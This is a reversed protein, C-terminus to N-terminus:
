RLEICVMQHGYLKKLNFHVRNSEYKFDISDKEPVLQVSKPESEIAISLNIDFLPIVDEIVDMATSRRQPVYHMLHVVQRNQNPQKNITVELSSPGNHRVLREPLLMDIANYFMKKCWLPANTNYTKFLPHCFYITNGNKVVAPLDSQGLSPAQQHSCFHEYTRDFHPKITELLVESSGTTQVSLGRLYMVHETKPLGKGIPGNPIVYNIYNNHHYHRGRVSNGEPDVTEDAVYEVGLSRLGFSKGTEDLGSEYSAIIKGGSALYAELKKALATGVTIADPLLLVKYASFDSQSDLIDFQYGGEILMRTAGTISPHLGHEASTPIFEEPTLVGIEVVPIADTCWSEKKKVESYVSGILDYTTRCIKGSPNLQDGICCKANLALMRYCEYELSAKNKFSHFDGWWTHFKGTMGLYDHGLTRAYRATTPFHLYGWFGGPLSELEFHTLTDKLSRDRPGVHGANYFILPNKVLSRAFRTMDTKFNSIVELGHKIRAGRDLPNIGKQKMSKRCYMCSCDQPMVIDFWLGDVPLSQIVDKVIQKLYDVYPTNLCLFQYFSSDMPGAGVPKGDPAVTLWEPHMQATRYDWQVTIYIPAQINRKHCAEIQQKLLNKNKLNPHILEPFQKSDYYLWGHHCHAFLNISNVHAMALTDAFEDANFQHGVSNIHESTHFDLHIQRFRLVDKKM